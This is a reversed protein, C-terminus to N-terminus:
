QVCVGGFRHPIRRQKANHQAQDEKGHAVGSKKAAVPLQLPQFLGDIFRHQRQRGGAARQLRVILRKQVGHADVAGLKQRLALIFTLVQQVVIGEPNM